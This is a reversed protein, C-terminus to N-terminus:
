IVNRRGAELAAGTTDANAETQEAADVPLTVTFETGQGVESQVEIKGAHRDMINKAIALGLGTRHQDEKTTFFPEWIQPLIEPPIGKGTDRVRVSASRSEGDFSTSVTLKGGKPMAEAANVLLVVLVQQIQGADCFVQPAPSCLETQLEIEQLELQHRVLKLSREVLSNLDAPARKPTTQRAFALLNKMIDGCRRSEREVVKLNELVQAKVAPDIDMGQITKITLRAYTLMGFLPNNVEHAVTAALKGLSAMKETAVMSAYLRELEESKRRVRDELTKAWHTLESRARSLDATMRNFSEALDGLEDDSRVPLRVDLDGAAVRQTGRTLEQIPKHVVKWVFLIGLASFLVAALVLVGIARRRNEALQEDVPQLSLHVDVVGLVRKEPPHVHCSATYCDPQNEIPRIVALVREGNPMFFIRARDPRNLRVLPAERAHCKYCAEANKDVATGIETPDTSFSIIGDKNFIRVRRIGPEAGIDRMHARMTERDNHLMEHRTSRLIIDSVRDASALTFSEFSRKENELNFYGTLAFFSATSAVLCVALKLALGRRISSKLAESPGAM